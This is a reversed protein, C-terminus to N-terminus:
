HKMEGADKRSGGREAGERCLVVGGILFGGHILMEFLQDTVQLPLPIFHLSGQVLPFLNCRLIHFFYHILQFFPCLKQPLVLLVPLLDMLDTVGHEEQLYSLDWKGKRKEWSPLIQALSLDWTRTFANIKELEICMYSRFQDQCKFCGRNQQTLVSSPCALAQKKQLHSCSVPLVNTQGRWRWQRGKCTM